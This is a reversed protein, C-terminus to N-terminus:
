ERFLRMLLERDERKEAKTMLYLLANRELREHRKGLGNVQRVLRRHAFVIGGAAFAANVLVVVIAGWFGWV